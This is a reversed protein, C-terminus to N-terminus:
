KKIEEYEVDVVNKGTFDFPDDEDNINTNVNMKEYKSAKKKGRTKFYKVTKFGAWAIFGLLLLPPLIRIFVFVAMIAIVIKFAGSFNRNVFDM